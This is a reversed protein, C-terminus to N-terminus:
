DTEDRRGVPSEPARWLEFLLAIFGSGWLIGFIALTSM